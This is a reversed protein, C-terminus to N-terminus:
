SQIQQKNEVKSDIYDVIQDYGHKKPSFLQRATIELHRSSLTKLMPTQAEVKEFILKFVEFHDHIAAFHIPTLGNKAKPNKDLINNVILQCVSLHGKRAALHLPTYGISDDQPNKNEIHVIILKCEALQGAEAAKHLATRGNKDKKKQITEYIM